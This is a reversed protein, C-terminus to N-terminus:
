HKMYTDLSEIHRLIQFIKCFKKCVLGAGLQRPAQTNGSWDGPAVAALLLLSRPLVLALDHGPTIM